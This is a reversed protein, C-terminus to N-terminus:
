RNGETDETIEEVVADIIKDLDAPSPDDTSLGARVRETIAERSPKPSKDRVDNYVTWALTAVSVILSGLAIPDLYQNASRAYLAAEVQAELEPGHDPALRRAAARATRGIPDRTVPKQQSM